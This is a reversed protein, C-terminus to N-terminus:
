ALLERVIVNKQFLLLEVGHVVTSPSLKHWIQNGEIRSCVENEGRFATFVLAM